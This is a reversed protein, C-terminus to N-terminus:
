LLQYLEGRARVVDVDVEEAGVLASDVVVYHDRLLMMFEEVRKVRGEVDGEGWGGFDYTRKRWRSPHMFVQQLRGYPRYRGSGMLFVMVALIVSIPAFISNGIDMFSRSFVESQNDVTFSTIAVMIEKWRLLGTTGNTGTAWVLDTDDSSLYTTTSITHYIELDQMSFPHWVGKWPQYTHQTLFAAVGTSNLGADVRLYGRGTLTTAGITEYLQTQNLNQFDIFSTSRPDTYRSGYMLVTSSHVERDSCRLAVSWSPDNSTLGGPHHHHHQALPRRTALRYGM